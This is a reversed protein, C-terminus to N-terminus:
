IRRNASNGCSTKENSRVDHQRNKGITVLKENGSSSVCDIAVHVKSIGRVPKNLSSQHICSTLQLYQNQLRSIEPQIGRTTESLEPFPFLKMAYRKARNYHEHCAHM